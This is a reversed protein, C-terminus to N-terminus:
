VKEISLGKDSTTNQFHIGIYRKLINIPSSYHLFSSWCRLGVSSKVLLYGLLDPSVNSAGVKSGTVLQACFQLQGGAVAHAAGGDALREDGQFVGPQNLSQVPPARENCVFSGAAVLPIVVDM